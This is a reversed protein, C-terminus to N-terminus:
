WFWKKKIYKTKQLRYGILNPFITLSSNQSLGLIRCTDVETFGITPKLQSALLENVM